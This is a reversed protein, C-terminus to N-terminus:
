KCVVELLTQVCVQIMLYATQCFPGCQFRSSAELGIRTSAAITDCELQTVVEEYPVVTEGRRVPLELMSELLLPLYPRQEQPVGATDMLVFMQLLNGLSVKLLNM